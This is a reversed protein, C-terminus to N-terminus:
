LINQDQRDYYQDENFEDYSPKVKRCFPNRLYKTCFDIIDQETIFEPSIESSIDEAQTDLPIGGRKMFNARIIKESGELRDAFRAWSEKPFRSLKQGIIWEKYTM